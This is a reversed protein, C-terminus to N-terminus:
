FSYQVGFQLLTTNKELDSGTLISQIVLPDDPYAFRNGEVLHFSLKFVFNSRLWYNLGVALDQHDLIQSIYAPTPLTAFIPIEGNWWDYRVALQWNADLKYATELYGGDSRLLDGQKFNAYEGRIWWHNDVYEMLAGYVDFSLEAIGLTEVVAFDVQTGSYGSLGLKFDGWPMDLIVRGGITDTIRFELEVQSELAVVPNLLLTGPVAYKNKILGGYLDYQLGWGGSTFFSGTLGIGNYSKATFGQAGYIAQPLMLFPRITGVNFVEAYIGFPQKVRGFRLKLQDALAWEGFAYELQSQLGGRDEEWNVQAVVNMEDYPNVTLALTFSVHDFEGVETGLQYRHGNTNGYGWTGYGNIRVRDLSQAHASESSFILVGIILIGLSYQKM